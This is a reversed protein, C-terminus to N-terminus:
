GVALQRREDFVPVGGSFRRVADIIEDKSADLAGPILVLPSGWRRTLRERATHPRLFLERSFVPLTAGDRPLFVLVPGKRPDRVESIERWSVTRGDFLTVGADDLRVLCGKRRWIVHEVVLRLVALGGLGCLSMGLVVEYGDKTVLRVGFLLGSAVSVLKWGLGGARIELPGFDPGSKGRKAL